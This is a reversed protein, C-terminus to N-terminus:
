MVLLNLVEVVQLLLNLTLDIPEFLFNMLIFLLELKLDLISEVVELDRRLQLLGLPHPLYPVEHCSLLSKQTLDAEVILIVLYEM